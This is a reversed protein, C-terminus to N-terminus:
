VEAFPVEGRHGAGCSCGPVGGGFSSTSPWRVPEGLSISVITARCELPWRWEGDGLKLGASRLALVLLTRSFVIEGSPTFTMIAVLFAPRLIVTSFCASLRFCPVILSFLSFFFGGWFLRVHVDRRLNQRFFQRSAGLLVGTGPRVVMVGIVAAL